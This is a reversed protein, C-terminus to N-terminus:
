EGDHVQAARRNKGQKVNFESTNQATPILTNTHLKLLFHKCLAM